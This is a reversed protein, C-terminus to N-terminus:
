SAQVPIQAAVRARIEQYIPINMNPAVELSVCLAFRVKGILAGADAACNIKFKLTDGDVYAVASEGELIEHQLTGRQASRFEASNERKIRLEDQPPTSWLKARRYTRHAPNIPSLWALTITLRRWATKGSLSPPLPVSFIQAEGDGIEGVGLLTARELTCELTKGSDVPGYGLWRTVFDKRANHEILDSRRALLDESITGWSAGHTVMAKLLVADHTVPLLGPSQARLSDLVEYAKTAARSALATANSTGRSYGQGGLGQGPLPPMAVLQGPAALANVLELATNEPGGVLASKHLVRGGPMLVDPKIARRFGHGVRSIPSVGGFAFLDFREPVPVFGSRDSHVGGVTLANISEAPALIRRDVSAAILANTALDVREVDTSGVFESKTVNIRLPGMFNGASVIFLVGYKASLWDLLRAWPSIERDFPRRADGMSLNIVRVGPAAPPDVSDGECIRKVARHILDILLEGAPTCETSQPHFTDNPDPRMIPRVYLKRPSPQEGADLEGRLILSAMATGHSRDKAPYTGEWGDPDDIQLLGALLPHNQLPLGDLLAVVPARDSAPVQAFSAIQVEADEPVSISQARPRFFMVEDSLVLEPTTGDLIDQVASRPLEVLLGHYAIEPLTVEALIAGNLERVCQRIEAAAVANRTASSFAWAEIEFRITPTNEDLREQWFARVDAGIRDAVSWPRIDRLQAFVNRFKNLGREFPTSPNAQYRTWLSLLQTLAEQNSALLFLRGALGGESRAGQRDLPHFDDDAPVDEEEWEVLWELGPVRAVAKVFDEVPGITEIVLVLEPNEGPATQQLKLRKAEFVTSLSTFKPGMRLRQREVSPLSFRSPGGHGPDAEAAAPLPFVLLPFDTM